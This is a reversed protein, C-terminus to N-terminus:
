GPPLKPNLRVRGSVSVDLLAEQRREASGAAERLVRPLPTGLFRHGDWRYLIWDGHRHLWVRDPHPDDLLLRCNMLVPLRASVVREWIEQRLSAPDGATGEDRPLQARRATWLLAQAEQGPPEKLIQRWTEIAEPCKGRGVLRALSRAAAPDRAEVAPRVEAWLAQLIGTQTAM